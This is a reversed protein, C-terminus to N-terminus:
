SLAELISPESEALGSEFYSEWGPFALDTEASALEPFARAFTEAGSASEHRLQELPTAATVDVRFNGITAPILDSAPIAAREKKRLVTVVIAPEDTIWGNTFRYGPRISIVERSRRLDGGKERITTVIEEFSERASRSLPFVAPVMKESLSARLIYGNHQEGRLNVSKGDYARFISAARGRERVLSAENEPAHDSALVEVRIGGALLSVKNDSITLTGNFHGQGRADAVAGSAPAANPPTGESGDEFDHTGIRDTLPEAHPPRIEAM